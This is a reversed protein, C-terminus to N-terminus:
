SKTAELSAVLIQLPDGPDFPKGDFRGFREMAVFGAQQLATDIEEPEFHRLKLRRIAGESGGDNAGRRRERLHPAFIPRPPELIPPGEGPLLRPHLPGTSPNAVDFVFAGEPELHHRVTALLAHLDELSGMLAVANQPALVLPFRENLRLSRLDALLFRVRDSDMGERARREEAAQIMSKSPDVAVVPHGKSVLEFALKGNACGLTLVRGGGQLDARAAAQRAYFAVGPERGVLSLAMRM